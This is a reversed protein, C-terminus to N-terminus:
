VMRGRGLATASYIHVRADVDGLPSKIPMIFTDKFHAIYLSSKIKKRELPFNLGLNSIKKKFTLYLHIQM